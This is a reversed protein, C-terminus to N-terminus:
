DTGSMAWDANRPYSSSPRKLLDDPLGAGRVARTSRDIQSGAGDRKRMRAPPDFVSSAKEFLGEAPEVPGIPAIAPQAGVAAPDGHVKKGSAATRSDFGQRPPLQAGGRGGASERSSAAHTPNRWPACLVRKAGDGGSERRNQIRERRVGLRRSVNLRIPIRLEGHALGKFDKPSGETWEKPASRPRLIKRVTGTCGASM